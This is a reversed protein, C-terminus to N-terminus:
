YPNFILPLLIMTAWQGFWVLLFGSRPLRSITHATRQWAARTSQGEIVVNPKSAGTRASQTTKYAAIGTHPSSIVRHLSVHFPSNLTYGICQWLSFHTLLEKGHQEPRSARLLWMQSPPEREPQSHLRRCYGLHYAAIGTHPSSIVRHLSVHFPSNLTYGICQWSCNKAM